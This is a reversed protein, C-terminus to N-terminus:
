KKPIGDYQKEYYQYHFSKPDFFTQLVENRSLVKISRGYLSTMDSDEYPLGLRQCHPVWLDHFLNHAAKMTEWEIIIRKKVYAEKDVKGKAALNGLELVEPMTNLNLLEFLTEYWLVPATKPQGRHYDKYYYNRTVQIYAKKGQWAGYFRADWLPDPDRANWVVLGDGGEGAFQRVTWKWLDDDKRVYPAMVPRDELLRSIQAEGWALQDQTLSVSKDWARSPPTVLFLIIFLGITKKM